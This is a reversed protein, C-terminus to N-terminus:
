RMDKVCMCFFFTLCEDMCVFACRGCHKNGENETHTLHLDMGQEWIKTVVGQLMSFKMHVANDQTDMHRIYTM